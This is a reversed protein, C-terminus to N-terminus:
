QSATTTSINALGHRQNMYRSLTTKPEPCSVNPQCHFEAPSHHLLYPTEHKVRVAVPVIVGVVVITAVIVVENFGLLQR